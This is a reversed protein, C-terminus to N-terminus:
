SIRRATVRFTDFKLRKMIEVSDLKITDLNSESEHAFAFYALGFINTLIEKVHAISGQGSETLKIIFRGRLRQINVFSDPTIGKLANKINEILKKEFYIRNKGKLGIESYHCIIHTPHKSLM